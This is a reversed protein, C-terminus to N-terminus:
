SNIKVLTAKIDTTAGGSVSVLKSSSISHSDTGEATMIKSKENLTDEGEIKIAKGKIDITNTPTKGGITGITIKPSQIDISTSGKIRIVPSNIDISSASTISISGTKEHIKIINGKSTSIKIQHKNDNFILQSGTRTTFAKVNNEQIHHSDKSQGHHISGMVFPRNPDNYRFGVIVQDGVEPHVFFGRNKTKGDGEGADATLIRIWETQEGTAQQWLFQVQVRGMGQPDNNTKVTAIQSEAVPYRVEKVPVVNSAAPIAEFTNRYRNNGDVEHTVSILLYQGYDETIFDLVGKKSIKISAIVGINVGPSSSKGLLAVLSAAAAEKRVKLMDDLESKDKVRPKLPVNVSESFLDQAKNLAFQSDADLGDVSSPADAQLLNNNASNYSYQSFNVPGMKMSWNMSSIERGYVLDIVPLSDPKGFNTNLGDYYFWEGYESSLRNLFSFTSEKYQTMYPIRRSYVPKAEIRLDNSVVKSTAKTVIDKLTMGKFSKLDIGNDLLITPSYGRLVLDGHLGNSQSLGIECIIGSFVTTRGTLSATLTISIFKSILGKSTEATASGLKEFTDHNVHLEFWHHANFAQKITLYSFALVPEGEIHIETIIKEEM